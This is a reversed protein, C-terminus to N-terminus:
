NWEDKQYQIKHIELHVRKRELDYDIQKNYKLWPCGLKKYARKGYIVCLMNISVTAFYFIVALNVILVIVVAGAM